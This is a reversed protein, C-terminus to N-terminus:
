SGNRSFPVIPAQLKAPDFSAVIFHLDYYDKLADITSQDIEGYVHTEGRRVDGFCAYGLRQLVQFVDRAARTGHLEVVLDPRASKLTEEAGKLMLAEAGEIDIKIVDPKPLHDVKVLADLRAVRVTETVAPLGYQSRGNSPKGATVRDLVATGSMIDDIQLAEEGDRDSLACPIVQIRDRLVSVQINAQLLKRNKTMPEFCVVRAAKFESAILRAYLGINAGVDYVVGGPPILRKLAGLPFGEHTYPDRLWFSRNSRARLYFPGVLDINVKLRVDPVARLAWRGLTPQHRLWETCHRILTPQNM